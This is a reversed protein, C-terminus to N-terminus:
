YNQQGNSINQTNIEGVGAPITGVKGIQANQAQQMQFTYQDVYKKLRAQFALDQQARQMVDPQQMYQQIIQMAIQAGNPRAGAEIGAYIKSLDDTVQKVMQQQSEGEPQIVADAMSPNIASAMAELLRDMNIRGNKDFQVLSVFQNLQSELTEPDNNMVDFNLVIDFNENPDGRNFRVPDSAGTVRFFVEDPGFRQYCKFALRLVDRVHCLFKDVYYQQRIRSMPNTHDLGVIRDAQAIQTLEMEVSGNNFPPVPGFQIEGARRYPVRVASGWDLPPNGVPHLIPPVTALSHRDIRSDREGKVQWQIGILQEPITALEYMRKNDESLKTVVFPYDDYGNLLQHKAYRPENETGTLRPHFVTCYIGESDDDSSILRQYCYIIVYLENTQQFPFRNVVTNTQPNSTDISTAYKEIVEDVWEKDWEETFSKNKLEQATLLVRLFCYPAKQPDTTYAPFFVDGDPALSSVNPCNITQRVVPLEASGTKRLEKIAKKARSTKLGKFQSKMLEVLADDNEKDKFMEVLDPSIQAIQELTLSQM